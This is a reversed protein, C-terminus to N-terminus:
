SEIMLYVPSYGLYKKWEEEFNINMGFIKNIRDLDEIVDDEYVNLSKINNVSISISEKISELQEQMKDAYYNFNEESKKMYKDKEEDFIKEINAILFGYKLNFLDLEELLVMVVNTALITLLIQLPEIFIDPLGFQAQLYEALIDVVITTITMSIMKTIADAKEVASRKDDVLTKICNIVTLVLEKVIKMLRKITAKLMEIIIDFFTRLFKNFANNAINKLIEGLKSKVYKAIRKLAKKLGKIFNNVTINKKAVIIKSEYVVPPITYYLIQGIIIKKTSMITKTAANKAIKEKNMRKLVIESEKNMSQKYKEVLKEKVEKKVKGNKDLYGKKILKEKQDSNQWQEAVANAMEYPTADNTVDKIYENGAKKKNLAQVRLGKRVLQPNGNKDLEYFECIRIDGKSKNASEDIMQFNDTSNWFDQLEQKGTDDVYDSNYNASNWAQIHDAQLSEGKKGTLEDFIDGNEDTRLKRYKRQYKDTDRPGEFLNERASRDDNAIEQLANIDLRNFIEKKINNDEEFIDIDKEYRFNKIRYYFQDPTIYYDGLNFYNRVVESAVDKAINIVFESGLNYNLLEKIRLNLNEATALYIEKEKELMENRTAILDTLNINYETM